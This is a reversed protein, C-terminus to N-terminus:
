IHKHNVSSGAKEGANYFAFAEDMTKMTICMAEFDSKNLLNTQSEKKNTVILLHNRRVPYKNLLLSHTSTLSDEVCIGPEFPKLFKDTKKFVSHGYDNPKLKAGYNKSDNEM